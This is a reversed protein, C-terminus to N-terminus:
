PAPNKEFHAVTRRLGERVDYKPEYGILEKALTV